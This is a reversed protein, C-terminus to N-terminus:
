EKFEIVVQEYDKPAKNSIEILDGWWEGTRKDNIGRYDGGGRGNSIATLLPLPHIVFNGQKPIVLFIKKTHNILYNNDSWDYEQNEATPQTYDYDGWIKQHHMKAEFETAFWGTEMLEYYEIYDGHWCVNHPNKYLQNCVANVFNNGVYSHEMLKLGNGYDHSYFASFNGNKDKLVPIYYQGM